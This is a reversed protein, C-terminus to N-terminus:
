TLDLGRDLLEDIFADADDFFEDAIRKRAETVPYKGPVERDTENGWAVLHHGHEVLWAHPAKNYIRVQWDGQYTHPASKDIGALLNGTKKKTRTRTEQRVYKRGKTSVKRLLEKAEKPYRTNIIALMERDLKELESFDFGNGTSV